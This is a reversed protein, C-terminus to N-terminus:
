SQLSEWVGEFERCHSGWSRLYLPVNWELIAGNNQRRLTSINQRDGNSFVSKRGTLFTVGPRRVWGARFPMVARRQPLVAPDLATVPKGARAARGKLGGTESLM